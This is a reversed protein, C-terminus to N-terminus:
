RRPSPPGIMHHVACTYFKFFQSLSFRNEPSFLKPVQAQLLKSAQRCESANLIWVNGSSLAIRENEPLLRQIETLVKFGLTLIWESM